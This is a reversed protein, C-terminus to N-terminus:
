KIWRPDGIQNDKLTQNSITFDGTDINTFGPDLTTHNGSIDIKNTGSVTYFRAANYYNNKSCTPQATNAQNSFYGMYGTMGAFICNTVTSANDLFRVYLIRSGSTANGSVNYFTCKNINVTCTKGTGSLGAAADLRIFDRPFAAVRDFTSNTINLNAVYGTRFDIFDGGTNIINKMICNDILLTQLQLVANNGYILAQNYDRIVCGEIKISNVNYTGSNFIIAQAHPNTLTNNTGVMEIDKLSLDTLGSGLMLRNRIIPKQNPYVAKISISKEITIDGQNVTYDGPFLALTSGPAAAAIVVALDDTHYVPTAGVLDILTTFTTTGRLKTNNYLKATYTTEGALGSITALGAAKEAASIDRRIDGPTILLHTVNSNAPWRVIATTAQIDGDVKALIINEPDTQFSVEAWKSDNAVSSIAKVRAYYKTEGDLVVTYPVNAPAITATHAIPTYTSSESIELVYNEATKSTAWTFTVTTKNTVKANFELAKFARDFQLDEILPSIKDKCSSTFLLLALGIFIATNKLINKM